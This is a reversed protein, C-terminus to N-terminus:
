RPKVRPPFCLNGAEKKKRRGAAFMFFAGLGRCVRIWGGKTRVPLIKKIKMLARAPKCLLRMQTYTSELLCLQSNFFEFNAPREFITLHLSAFFDLARLTNRQYATQIKKSVCCIAM